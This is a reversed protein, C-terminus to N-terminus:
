PQGWTPDPLPRLHAVPVLYSAVTIVTGEILYGDLWLHGDIGCDRVGLVRYPRDPLWGPLGVVDGIQPRTV